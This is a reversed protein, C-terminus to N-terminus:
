KAGSPQKKPRGKKKEPPFSMKKALGRAALAKESREALSPTARMQVENQDLWRLVTSPRWRPSSGLYVCPPLNGEDKRKYITARHINLTKALENLTLLKEM